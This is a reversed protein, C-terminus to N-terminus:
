NMVSKCCSLFRVFDFRQMVSLGSESLATPLVFIIMSVLLARQPTRSRRSITVIIASIVAAALFRQLMLLVIYGGLTTRIGISRFLKLNQVMAEPYAFGIERHLRFLCIGHFATVALATLISVWAIQATLMRARGNRTSRLLLRTDWRNDYAGLGYFSFILFLLLLMCCRRESANETIMIRYPSENVLYPKFGMEKAADRTTTMMELFEEYREMYMWDERIHKRILDKMDESGGNAMCLRFSQSDHDLKDEEGLLMKQAKDIKEQTIEGSYQTYFKQVDVSQQYFHIDNFLMVGFVACVAATVLAREAFLLKWGEAGFLSHVPMLRSMRSVMRDKVAELQQGARVPRLLGILIVALVTLIILLLILAAIIDTLIGSPYGFWNLNCYQTFFVDSELATFVNIFKLHNISSTPVIATSLVYQLALLPVSILWSLVSYFRTFLIWFTLAVATVAALKMLAAAAYYGGVTIQVTCYKFDPVSQIARFLGPYGFTKAAYLINGGYLLIVAAASLIVLSLIRVLCLPVRGRKTTRILAGIASDAEASLELVLLLPAILLLYDTIRYHMVARIGTNEGATLRIGKLKEYDKATKELNHTIFSGKASLKGLINQQVSQEKVYDLYEFYGSTIYAQEEERQVDSAKQVLTRLSKTQIQVYANQEEQVNRCYFSFLALNIVALMLLTILQKPSLLLRKMEAM